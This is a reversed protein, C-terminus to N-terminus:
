QVTINFILNDINKPRQKPSIYKEKPIEKDNENRDTELTNQQLNKSVKTIRKAIKNGILDGAAEATKPIGRKSSTKFVNTAFKKAHDLRKQSYKGSLIKSINRGISKGMHKAFSLFGYGKVFISFIRKCIDRLQLSNRTKKINKM